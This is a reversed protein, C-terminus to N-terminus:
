LFWLMRKTSLIMLFYKSYNTSNLEKKMLFKIFIDSCVLDSNRIEFVWFQTDRLIVEICQMLSNFYTLIWDTVDYSDGFEWFMDGTVLKSFIQFTDGTDFYKKFQWWWRRFMKLVTVPTLVNELSDGTSEM